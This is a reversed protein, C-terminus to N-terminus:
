SLRLIRRGCAPIGGSAAPPARTRGAATSVAAELPVGKHDAVTMGARLSHASFEGEVLGAGKIVRKVLRAVTKPDIPQLRGDLGYTLHCGRDLRCFLPGPADGRAARWASVATVACLPSRPVAQVGVDAM